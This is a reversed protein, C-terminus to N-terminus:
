LLMAYFSDRLLPVETEETGEFSQWASTLSPPFNVSFSFSRNQAGSQTQVALTYASRQSGFAAKLVLLPTHISSTPKLLSPTEYVFRATSVAVPVTQTWNGFVTKGFAEGVSTGSAPDVTENEETSREWSPDPKEFLSPDPVSFGDSFLLRSGHPVYVQIYNVNNVGTFPDGPVGHHTRTVTLEHVARGDEQLRIQLHLREDIVGDTKGGGINANSVLLYDGDSTQDMEGSWGLPQLHKQEEADTLYIQVDKSECSQIFLEVAELLTQADLSSTQSLVADALDGIFAKPAPEDRGDSANVFQPYEKEVISQTESVANEATITRGYKEMSVPGILSLLLPLVSANIAVVGDITPGGSADYFSLIQRASTPFDPFWNADQFEWRANILQLPRPAAQRSSLSGQLDYTGGAPIEIREVRGESIDVVAFSGMFGGAPRLENDNQFLLLYRRSEESGLLLSFTKSLSLWESISSTMQRLLPQLRELEATETEPLRKPNTALLNEEAEKLLPLISRLSTELIALKAVPTASPHSTAELGESLRMGAESIQQGAKILKQITELPSHVPPLRSLLASLDSRFRNLDTKAKSLSGSAKQFSQTAEAANGAVLSATGQRLDSFASAGLGTMGTRLSRVEEWMGLAHLPLVLLSAVLAFSVAARSSGGVSLLRRLFTFDVSPLSRRSFRPLRKWFPTATPWTDHVKPQYLADWTTLASEEEQIEMEPLDLPFPCPPTEGRPPVLEGQPLIRKFLPTTKQLPTLDCENLQREAIKKDFALSGRTDSFIKKISPPLFNLQPIQTESELPLIPTPLSPHVRLSILFPSLAGDRRVTLKTEIGEKKEGVVPRNQLLHTPLATDYRAAPSPLHQSFSKIPQNITPLSLSIKRTKSPPKITTKRKKPTKSDPPSLRRM